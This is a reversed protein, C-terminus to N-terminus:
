QRNMHQVNYRGACELLKMFDNCFLLM